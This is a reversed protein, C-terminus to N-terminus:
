KWLILIEYETHWLIGHGLKERLSRGGRKEQGSKPRKVREKRVPMRLTEREVPKKNKM